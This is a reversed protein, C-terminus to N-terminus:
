GVLLTSIRRPEQDSITLVKKNLLTLLPPCVREDLYVSLNANIKMTSLFLYTTCKSLGLQTPMWTKQDQRLCEALLLKGDFLLEFKRYSSYFWGSHVNTLYKLQFSPIRSEIGYWDAMQTVLAHTSTSLPKQAPALITAVAPQMCSVLSLASDSCFNPDTNQQNFQLTLNSPEKKQHWFVVCVNFCKNAFFVVCSGPSVYSMGVATLM